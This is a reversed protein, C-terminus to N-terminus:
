KWIVKTVTAKETGDPSVRRTVIQFHSDVNWVLTKRVAKDVVRDIIFTKVKDGEGNDPEIYVQEKTVPAEDEKATYVLVAQNLLPDFSKEETYEEMADPTAIDPLDLFDKAERRFEERKIYTTDSNSDITVVKIIAYLSTDVHAVQSKIFSLVPFSGAKETPEEKKDKCCALFLLILYLWRKM